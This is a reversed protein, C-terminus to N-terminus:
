VIKRKGFLIMCKELKKVIDDPTELLSFNHILSSMILSKLVIIKGFLTLHRKRWGNLIQEIKNLKELWNKEKCANKNYGVYIGLCRIPNKDFRIGCVNGDCERNNGLWMGESKKVNLKTGAYASYENIVNLTISLSNTDDCLVFTDDAHQCSKYEYEGICIGKIDKCERLQSALIEASLIYLLASVPCGQRIGRTPAIEESLWGNNKLILSPNKYLINIWKIFCEGFNYKKLTQVIFSWELTDFAKQFDLGVMIGSKNTAKCYDLIDMILRVNTGMYRKRLYATQSEDILNPM